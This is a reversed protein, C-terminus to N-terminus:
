RAKRAPLGAAKRLQEETYTASKFNHFRTKPLNIKDQKKAQVKWDNKLAGLLYGINANLDGKVLTTDIKEKLYDVGKKYIDLSLIKKINEESLNNSKLLKIYDTSNAVEEKKSKDVNDVNDVPKNKGKEKLNIDKELEIEIEIEPPRIDSLHGSVQGKLKEQNIKQRYERKRDGETSSRGIFNQIQLMYMAGSELQEILGLNMFHVIAQKVDGVSHRTVTALMEPSYPIVDNMMLKGSNKLSRLYLKLLINSYKHGDPLSELYIIEDSEFFNEKLKLYYYKKNDSM